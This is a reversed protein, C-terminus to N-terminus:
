NYYEYNNEAQDITSFNRLPFDDVWYRVHLADPRLSDGVYSPRIQVRVPLNQQLAADWSNELTRYSGMNFNGNQAFHNFDSDGRSRYVGELKL